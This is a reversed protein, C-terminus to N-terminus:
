GEEEVKTEWTIYDQKYKSHSLLNKKEDKNNWIQLEWQFNKNDGTLFYAHVAVYEDKDASVVRINKVNNSLFDIVKEHSYYENLVIRFGMIDNICKKLPVEGQQHRDTMYRKFKDQISNNQKVRSTVKCTLNLRQMEFQLDNMNNLFEMYSYIYNMINVDGFMHCVKQKGDYLNIGNNLEQWEESKQKHKKCLFEMLKLLDEM